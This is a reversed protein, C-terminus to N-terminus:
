ALALPRVPSATAGRMKLPLCVFTFEYAGAAALEELLLNEIIHIGARCILHVHGPLTLGLEPDRHGPLDWALNDAGVLRPEHSALWASAPGSIGPGAEYRQRDAFHAGNGTSVLVADGARLETGQRALARQLLEPGILQPVEEASDAGSGGSGGGGEASAAGGSADAGAVAAVDILVGRCLIPDITACDLHSIGHQTQIEPSVRTGDCLVGGEAQHCLADIHTGSHETANIVGSASTRAEAPEAEHRRHLFLWFGPEHAPMVPAGPYRPQELDFVRSEMLTQLPHEAM